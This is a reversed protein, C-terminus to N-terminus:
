DGRKTMVIPIIKDNEIFMDDICLQRHHPCDDNWIRRHYVNYYNGKWKFYGNHGPGPAVESSSLIIGDDTLPSDLDDKCCYHVAYSGDTWHGSSYMFFYKGNEKFVCPAEVYNPPTIEHFTQGDDLLDFGDMTANMKAINLHWWGGYLLWMTGDDDKFLHADIPQAGNIFDDLLPAGDKKVNVFPGYPTDAVGIYLGGVPRDPYINNAAFILYYKGDKEEITPAWIAHYAGHFTDMDLVAPYSEFTKFDKSCLMDLNIQNEFNYSGTVYIFLTDDYVRAEPDAYWRGDIPNNFQLRETRKM